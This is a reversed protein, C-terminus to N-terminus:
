RLAEREEEVAEEARTMLGVGVVILVLSIVRIGLGTMDKPMSENLAFIGVFVATGLTFVAAYTGVLIARGLRLARTQLFFGLSSLLFSGGFGLVGFLWNESSQALLMCGRMWAASFGFCAGAQLGACLETAVGRRLLFEAFLVLAAFVVVIAYADPLLLRDQGPRMTASVGIAGGVALAVGLWEKSALREKLYYHASLALFVTGAALIPQIVSVPAMALAVATLIAGLVDGAVGVLWVWCTFYAKIVDRQLSMPPLDKLGQKQLVKGINNGATAFLSALLAIWM